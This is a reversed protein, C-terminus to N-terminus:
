RELDGIVIEVRRNMQRGAASANSAVPRTDAFGAASGMRGSPLGGQLLYLRVSEARDRSLRM